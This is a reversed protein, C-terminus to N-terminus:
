LSHTKPSASYFNFISNVIGEQASSPPPSNVNHSFKM